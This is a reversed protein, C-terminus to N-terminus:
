ADITLSQRRIELLVHPPSEASVVVRYEYELSNGKLLIDRAFVALFLPEHGCHVSLGYRGIAAPFLADKRSKKYSLQARISCFRDVYLQEAYAAVDRATRRPSLISLLSRTPRDCAQEFLIWGTGHKIAALEPRAVPSAAITAGHSDSLDQNLQV